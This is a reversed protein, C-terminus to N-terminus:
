LSGRVHRRQGQDQRSLVRQRGEEQSQDQYRQGSQVRAHHARARARRSRGRPRPASRRTSATSARRRSRSTRRTTARRAWRSLSTTSAEKLAFLKKMEAALRGPDVRRRRGRGDGRAGRVVVVARIKESPARVKKFAKDAGRKVERADKLLARMETDLTEGPEMAIREPVKQLLDMLQKAATKLPKSRLVHAGEKVESLDELMLGEIIGGVYAPETSDIMENLICRGVLAVPFMLELQPRVERFMAGVTSVSERVVERSVELPNEALVRSDSDSLELGIELVDVATGADAGNSKSPNCGM